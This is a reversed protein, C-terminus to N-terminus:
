LTEAVGIRFNVIKLEDKSACMQVASPAEPTYLAYYTNKSVHQMIGILTSNTAMCRM